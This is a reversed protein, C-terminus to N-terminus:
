PELLVKVARREDMAMYGAAVSALPMRADFVAGPALTGDLVSALLDPLYARVPSVGGAVRLNRTFLTQLALESGHPMGVYGVRGGPRVARVAQDMSQKTGVCELAADPGPEGFLEQLAAVGDDGRQTVIETAGADLALKQRVANRSMVAIREAGLRRAARVASLGVAGDGVVVVCDGPGVGASVAAHHGTAMVDTLALLDPIMAADPEGPVVVLTGDAMPVRVYEGQGGDVPQGARDPRGWSGGASCSSTMGTRCQACSNDCYLFPAIVFDGARVTAVASGTEVIHGVFEHGVPRPQEIAPQGRYPWLDSGCVCSAVVEVVVDGPQRITPDVLSDIRVDREAYLVAAQM